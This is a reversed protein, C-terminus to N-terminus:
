QNGLVSPNGTNLTWEWWLTDLCQAGQSTYKLRCSALIRQTDLMVLRQDHWGETITRLKDLRAEFWKGGEQLDPADWEFPADMNPSPTWINPPLITLKVRQNM